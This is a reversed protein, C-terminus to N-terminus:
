KPKVQEAAYLEEYELIKRQLDAWQFKQEVYVRKGCFPCIIYPKLIVAEKKVEDGCLNGKEEETPYKMDGFDFSLSCGCEKCTATRLYPDGIIMVAM